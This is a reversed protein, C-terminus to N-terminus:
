NKQNTEKSVEQFINSAEDTSIFQREQYSLYVFILFFLFKILIKRPM